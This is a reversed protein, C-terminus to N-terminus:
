ADRILGYLWGVIFGIIVGFLAGNWFTNKFVLGIIVTNDNM